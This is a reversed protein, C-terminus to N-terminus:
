AIQDEDEPRGSDGAKVRGTNGELLAPILSEREWM